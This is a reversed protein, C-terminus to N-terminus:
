KPPRFRIRPGVGRAKIKLLSAKGRLNVAKEMHKRAAEKLPKGETEGLTFYGAAEVATLLGYGKAVLEYGTSKLRLSAKKATQRFFGTIGRELEPQMRWEASSLISGPSEIKLKEFLGTVMARDVFGEMLQERWDAGSHGMLEALNQSNLLREMKQAAQPDMDWRKAFFRMPIISQEASKLQDGDPTNSPPPESPVPKPVEDRM